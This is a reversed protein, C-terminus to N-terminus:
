ARELHAYKEVLKKLGFRPFQVTIKADEGEGERRYVVGEGYKPHKVRQGPRFSGGGAPKEAPVQPRTFKKGRSAFFEAINDISNYKPGSYGGSRTNSRAAARPQSVSPASQDEDEYSYHRDGFDSDQRRAASSRSTGLEELLQPPVEELFRSPLTADPMDTGYRRRYRASSLVLSDMARTIGVY